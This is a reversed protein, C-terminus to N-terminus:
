RNKKLPLRLDSYRIVFKNLDDLVSQCHTQANSFATQQRDSLKVTKIKPWIGGLDHLIEELGETSFITYSKYM